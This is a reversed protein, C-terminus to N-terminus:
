LEEVYKEEATQFQISIQGSNKCLDYFASWLLFYIHFFFWFLSFIFHIFSSIFLFSHFCHFVFRPSHIFLYFFRPSIRCHSTIGTSWINVRAFNNAAHIMIWSVTNVGTRHRVCNSFKCFLFSTECRSYTTFTAFLESELLFLSLCRWHNTTLVVHRRGSANTRIQVRGTIEIKHFFFQKNQKRNRGKYREEEIRSNMKGCMVYRFNQRDVIM